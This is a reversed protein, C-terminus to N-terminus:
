RKKKAKPKVLKKKKLPAKKKAKVKSKPALQKPLDAAGKGEMEIGFLASLASEEVVDAGGLGVGEAASASAVLDLHDVHRLLFLWEPKTDISTGVGYLVAALHKCLGASDPCSCRMSIERPAPFLGGTQDVLISMVAKSFKGQLLEILSDIKGSCSKVLSKWKSENMAKIEVTIKYLSSGMVQADIRGKSVQLDIVSGNRLYTRGRPLRNSYDSYTELNNCWAKGWFTNAIQRGETIVPNLAKGKKQASQVQKAANARREAVPVYKPWSFRSSVRGYYGM